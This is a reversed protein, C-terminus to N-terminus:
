LTVIFCLSTNITSYSLLLNVKKFHEIWLEVYININKIVKKINTLPFLVVAAFLIRLVLRLLSIFVIM